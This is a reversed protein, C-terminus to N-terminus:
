QILSGGEVLELEVAIGFGNLIQLLSAELIREQNLFQAHTVSRAAIEATM